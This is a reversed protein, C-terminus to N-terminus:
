SPSALNQHRENYRRCGGLDSLRCWEARCEPLRYKQWRLLHRNTEPLSIITLRPLSAFTTPLSAQGSGDTDVLASDLIPGINKWTDLVKLFSGKDLVILGQGERLETADTWKGKGKRSPHMAFDSISVTSIDSPVPLTPQDLSAVPKQNIQIVQSDGHHSGVFLVQSTLYTLTM